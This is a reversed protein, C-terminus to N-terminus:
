LSSLSGPCLPDLQKPDPLPAGDHDRPPERPRSCLVLFRNCRILKVTFWDSLRTTRRRGAPRSAAAGNRRDRRMLMPRRSSSSLGASARGLLGASVREEPLVGAAGSLSNWSLQNNYVISPDMIIHTVSTVKSRQCGQNNRRVQFPARQQERNELHFANHSIGSPDAAPTTQSQCCCRRQHQLGKESATLQHWQLWPLWPLIM